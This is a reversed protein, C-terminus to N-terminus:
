TWAKRSKQSIVFVKYKSKFNLLEICAGDLKSEPVGNSGHWILEEVEGNLNAVTAAQSNINDLAGTGPQSLFQIDHWNSADGGRYNVHRIGVADPYITHYEDSFARSHPFVYGVDACSHRWHIVVRAPTNEILRIHSHRLQKDAMHESCGYVSSVEKSQESMWINNETVWGAGFNTGRWYVVSGPNEDFKVVIDPWPSTRWINDWLDHFKLKAYAAGFEKAQAPNGPLLRRELDPKNCLEVPPRLDAFSKAIETSSLARDYIKVEDILGEFGFLSPINHSHGRVTDTARAKTTNLGIVLDTDPITIDGATSYSAALQGNVYLNMKGNGYVGAVHTWKYVPIRKTNNMGLGRGEENSQQWGGITKDNVKFVAHGYPDVGLYYGQELNGSRFGQKGGKIGRMKKTYLNDQPTYSHHVIPADNWPYAGIAIWAEVTLEAVPLENSVRPTKARPLIVKSFYGDFGLATGSVGKKWLLKNGEVVCNIGKVNEKTIDGKPNMGEDFKWHAIPKAVSSTKVPSGKIAEEPKKSLTGKKLSEEKIGSESLMMVQRTLNGKDEFDILRKRGIKISRAVKGDPTIEYIEHVVDTPMVNKIEGTANDKEPKPYYRWHVIVKDKENKIIRVYSYFCLPDKVRPVIEKVTWKGTSTKWYPLHGTERSFVLQGKPGVNVIIDPYRGTIAGTRAKKEDEEEKKRGVPYDRVTFFPGTTGTITYDVRTYYAYFDSSQAKLSNSMPLPLVLLYLLICPYLTPIPKTRM